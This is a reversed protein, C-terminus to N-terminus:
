HFFLTLLLSLEFPKLCLSATNWCILLKPIRLSLIFDKLSLNLTSPTQEDFVSVQQFSM